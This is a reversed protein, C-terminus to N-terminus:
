GHTLPLSTLGNGPLAAGCHAQLQMSPSGTGVQSGPSVQWLSMM